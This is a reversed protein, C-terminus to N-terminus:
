KFLTELGIPGRRNPRRETTFFPSVIPTYGISCLLPSSSVMAVVFLSNNKCTYGEGREGQRLLSGFRDVQGRGM